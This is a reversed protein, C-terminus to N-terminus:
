GPHIIGVHLGKDKFELALKKGFYHAAAKSMGYGLGPVNMNDLNGSSGLVSGMVVFKAGPGSKELLPWSATFTRVPLVSNALLDDRVEETSSKLIPKWGSSSGANAIVVDIRHIGRTALNAVLNNYDLDESLRFIEIKSGSGRPLDQLSLSTPDATNRVAAIVTTDNRSLFGSVLGRGIGTM